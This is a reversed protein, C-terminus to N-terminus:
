PADPTPMRGRTQAVLTDQLSTDGSGASAEDAATTQCALRHTEDTCALPAVLAQFAALPVWGAEAVGGVTSAATAGADSSARIAAALPLPRGLYLMRVVSVANAKPDAAAGVGEGAPDGLGTGLATDPATGLEVRIDAAYPPWEPHDFVDLAALLPVLSSDHGSLLVVKPAAPARSAASVLHGELAHLLRGVSLRAVTRDRYIETWREINLSSLTLVDDVSIGPPLADGHAVLCVLVERAQDLRLAGDEYQLTAAARAELSANFRRDTAGGSSPTRPALAEKQAARLADMRQQLAACQSPRPILVEDDLERVAVPVRVTPTPALLGRLVNQVSQQTRRINTAVAVVGGGADGGSGEEREALAEAGEASACTEAKTNNVPLLHPAYTELSSRLAAGLAYCQQAGLRTLQGFPEEGADAVM